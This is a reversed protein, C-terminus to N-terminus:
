QVPSIARYDSQRIKEFSINTTAISLDELTAFDSSGLEVLIPCTEPCKYKYSLSVSLYGIAPEGLYKYHDYILRRNIRNNYKSPPFSLIRNETKYFNSIKNWRKQKDKYMSGDDQFLGVASVEVEYPCFLIPSGVKLCPRPAFSFDREHRLTLNVALVIERPDSTKGYVPIVPIGLVGISYFRTDPNIGLRIEVDERKYDLLETNGIPKYSNRVEFTSCGGVLMSVVVVAVPILTRRPM